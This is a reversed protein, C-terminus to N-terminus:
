RSPTKYRCQSGMGDANEKSRQKALLKAKRKARNKERSSLGQGLHTLEQAVADAASSQANFSVFCIM